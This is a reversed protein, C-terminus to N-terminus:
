KFCRYYINKIKKQGLLTGKLNKHTLLKISLLPDELAKLNM